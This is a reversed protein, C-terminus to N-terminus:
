HELMEEYSPASQMPVYRGGQKKLIVTRKGNTIIIFKVDLVMNYRVAQELVERDLNTEPRKCEVVALPRTSRDYILIDARFQKGGLRFGTESMMMHMPVKMYGHLMGICWQRVKEEPTLAVEKKRLPDFVSERATSCGSPSTKLIGSIEAAIDKFNKGDIEIIRSATSEYIAARKGMLEEIRARLEGASSSNLMPRGEYDNELNRVLTGISARLYICLTRTKVLDACEPTTLTGGGLSLVALSKGEPKGTKALGSGSCIVEKLTDREIQRFGAEGETSFIEPISRGQAEEIKSDLDIFSCSLLTALERGVSSKGCGMFGTLSIIM